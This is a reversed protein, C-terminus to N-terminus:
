SVREFRVNLVLLGLRIEDGDRLIRAQHAILRQGNLYTGNDSGRDMLHLAGGEKRMILAHQRSVGQEIAGWESLDVEPVDGTDPNLRGVRLESITGVDFVFVKDKDRVKLILNTRADVKASGWRPTGQETDTDGLTRTTVGIQTVKLPLGCHPCTEVDQKIPRDCWPCNIM